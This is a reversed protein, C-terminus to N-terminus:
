EQVTKPQPNAAALGAIRVIDVPFVLKVCFHDVIEATYEILNDWHGDNHDCLHLTNHVRSDQTGYSFLDKALEILKDPSILSLIPQSDVQSHEDQEM